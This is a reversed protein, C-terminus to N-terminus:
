KGLTRTSFLFYIYKLAGGLIVTVRNLGMKMRGFFFFKRGHLFFFMLPTKKTFFFVALIQIKEGLFDKWFQLFFQGWYATTLMMMPDAMAVEVDM